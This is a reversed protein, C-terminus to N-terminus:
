TYGYLTIDSPASGTRCYFPRSCFVMKAIM